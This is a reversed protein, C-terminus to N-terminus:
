SMMPPLPFPTAVTSSMQTRLSNFLSNGFSEATGSRPINVLSDFVPTWIAYTQSHESASNCTIALFHFCNLYWWSTFPYIFYVCHFIIRSYLPIFCKYLSCCPHVKFINHLTFPALCLLGSLTHYWKRSIDLLCLNMAVSLLHNITAMLLSLLLLFHCGVGTNKGPSRWPHPLRTPQWRHHRVSDSM